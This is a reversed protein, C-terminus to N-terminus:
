SQGMWDAHEASGVQESKWHDIDGPEFFLPGETGPLPLLFPTFLQECRCCSGVYSM